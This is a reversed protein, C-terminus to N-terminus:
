VKEEGIMIFRYLNCGIFNGIVLCVYLLLVSGINEKIFSFPVTLYYFADAICHPFGCLIFMPVAFLLPLWQNRRAFTVATTMLFGCGIALLGAKVPGIALRGALIKQAAEQLPMPSVRALLSVLLCGIINGLLILLLDGVQGKEIFGATGTYLKLKYCVVTILGFAFMVAGVVGGLALFGFGAIGICIGALISSKIITSFKGM